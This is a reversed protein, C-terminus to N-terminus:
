KSRKNAQSKWFAAGAIKAAAEADYGKSQLKGELGSFGIHPGKKGKMPEGKQAEEAVDSRQKKSLRKAAATRPQDYAM